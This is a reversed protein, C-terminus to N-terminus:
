RATAAPELDKLLAATREVFRTAGLRDFSALSARAEDTARAIEGSSGLAEALDLRIVASLIPREEGALEDLGAELFAVAAMTDGNRM